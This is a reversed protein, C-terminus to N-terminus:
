SYIILFIFLVLAKKYKCLRYTYLCSFNTLVNVHLIDVFCWEPTRSSSPVDLFLRDLTRVGFVLEGMFHIKQKSILSVSKLKFRHERAFFRLKIMAVLIIVLFVLLIACIIGIRIGASLGLIFIHFSNSKDCKSSIM